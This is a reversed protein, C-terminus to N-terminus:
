VCGSPALHWSRAGHLRVSAAVFPPEIGLHWPSTWLYRCLKELRHKPPEAARHASPRRGEPLQSKNGPAVGRVNHAPGSRFLGAIAARAFRDKGFVFAPPMAGYISVRKQFTSSRGCMPRRLRSPFFKHLYRLSLGTADELSCNGNYGGVHFEVACPRPM